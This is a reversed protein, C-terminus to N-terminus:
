WTPLPVYSGVGEPEYWQDSYHGPTGILIFGPLLALGTASIYGVVTALELNSNRLKLSTRQARGCIFKRGNRKRGGGLQIGKEDMNYINEPPIEHERM